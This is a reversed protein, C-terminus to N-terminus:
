IADSNGREQLVKKMAMGAQSLFIEFAEVNGIPKSEPLNDGYIIAVVKGECILPGIFAEVPEFGGLQKLIEAESSHQGLMGRIVSKQALAQGFLSEPDVRLRLNRVLRDAKEPNPDLGFQGIGILELGEVDFIVARNLLESAFRLILLMVGGSLLPNVLEQLMGKLLNLGISRGGLPEDRLVVPDFEDVLDRGIDYDGAQRGFRIGSPHLYRDVELLLQKLVEVGREERIELKKPKRLVTGGGLDRASKEAEANPHDTMLIMQLSPFKEAIIAMVELGGLIGQGDLRPMILDILLAPRQGIKIRDACAKILDAGLAFVEVEFGARTFAKQLVSRTPGDDDVIFLPGPVGARDAHLNRAAGAGCTVSEESLDEAAGSLDLRGEGVLRRVEAVLWQPNLGCALTFDHPLLAASGCTEAEALQFDFTGEVWGFFSYVIREIQAKIIAELKEQAVQRSAVLIEGLPRGAGRAQESLALDLGAQTLLRHKLLISGLGAPFLSSTAQVVLGASFTITGKKQGSTLFLKGSKKSLSVIQLIDGLSLDELNGVLSM